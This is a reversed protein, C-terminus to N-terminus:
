GVDDDLMHDREYTTQRLVFRWDSNAPEILDDFRGTGGIDVTVRYGM